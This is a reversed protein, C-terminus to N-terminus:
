NLCPTVWSHHQWPSQRRDTRKGSVAVAAAMNVLLERADKRNLSPGVVLAPLNSPLVASTKMWQLGTSRGMVVLLWDMAAEGERLPRGAIV